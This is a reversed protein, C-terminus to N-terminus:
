LEAAAAHVGRPAATLSSGIDFVIQCGSVLTDTVDENKTHLRM